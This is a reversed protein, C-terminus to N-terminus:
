RSEYTSLRKQIAIIANRRKTKIYKAEGDANWEELARLADPSGIIQLTGVADDRMNREPDKLYKSVAPVAEALGTNGLSRLAVRRDPDAESELVKVIVSFADAGGYMGLFGIARSRLYKSSMAASTGSAAVISKLCAILQPREAVLEDSLGGKCDECLLEVKVRDCFRTEGEGAFAVCSHMAIFLAIMARVSFAKKRREMGELHGHNEHNM